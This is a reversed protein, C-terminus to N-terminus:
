VWLQKLLPSREYPQPIARFTFNRPEKRVLDNSALAVIRDVAPSAVRRRTHQRVARLIVNAKERQGHWCAAHRNMRRWCLLGDDSPSTGDLAFYLDFAQNGICVVLTAISCSPTNLQKGCCTRRLEGTSDDVISAVRTECRLVREGNSLAVNHRQDNIRTVAAVRAIGCVHLQLEALDVALLARPIKRRVNNIPDQATVRQRIRIAVGFHPM